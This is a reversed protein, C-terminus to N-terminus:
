DALAPKAVGISVLTLTPKGRAAQQETYRVEVLAHKNDRLDRLNQDFREENYELELSKGSERESLFLTRPRLRRGDYFFYGTKEQPAANSRPAAKWLGKIIAVDSKGVSIAIQKQVSKGGNGAVFAAAPVEVAATIDAPEPHGDKALLDGQPCVRRTFAAVLQRIVEEDLKTGSPPVLIIQPRWEVGSWPVLQLRTQISGSDLGCWQEIATSIARAVSVPQEFKPLNLDAELCTLGAADERLEARFPNHIQIVLLPAEERRFSSPKMPLEKM